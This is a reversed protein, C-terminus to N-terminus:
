FTTAYTGGLCTTNFNYTGIGERYELPSIKPVIEIAHVARM